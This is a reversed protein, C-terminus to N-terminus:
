CLKHLISSIKVSSDIKNLDWNMLFSWSWRWGIRVHLPRTLSRTTNLSWLCEQPRFWLVAMIGIMDLFKWLELGSSIIEVVAINCWIPWWLLSCCGSLACLTLSLLIFTWKKCSARQPAKLSRSISQFHMICRPASVRLSDDGCDLFRNVSGQPFRQLWQM